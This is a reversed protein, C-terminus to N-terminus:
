FNKKVPTAVEAFHGLLAVADAAREASKKNDFIGFVSPGSGSMLACVAGSQSLMDKIQRAVPRSPLIVEEFINYIGSVDGAEFAEKFADVDRPVYSGQSFNDFKEDLVGYAWPTSVGEGGCAVVLYYNELAPIPHLKDGKADAYAAGGVMCFPIDAGLKAGIVLLREFSIPNGMLENLGCLIAAADASGGALGAAMPIRKTINIKVGTRSSGPLENWFLETAKWVINRNDTPVNENDCTIEIGQGGLCIDVNDFLSVSQMVTHVEHYGDSYRSSVDLFLNIKAYAKKTIRDM